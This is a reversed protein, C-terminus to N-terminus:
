PGASSLSSEWLHEQMKITLEAKARKERTWQQQDITTREDEMGQVAGRWYVRIGGLVADCHLLSHLLSIPWPRCVTYGLNYVKRFSFTGNFFFLLSLCYFTRMMKNMLLIIWHEIYCCVFDIKFILYKFHLPFSPWM